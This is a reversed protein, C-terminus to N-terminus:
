LRGGASLRCVPLGASSDTINAQGTTPKSSHRRRFLVGLLLPDGHAPGGEGAGLTVKLQKNLWGHDMGTKRKGLFVIDDPRPDAGMGRAVHGQRAEPARGLRAGPVHLLVAQAGEERTLGAEAPLGGILAM